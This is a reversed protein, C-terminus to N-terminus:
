KLEQKLNHQYQLITINLKPLYIGLLTYRYFHTGDIRYMLSSKNCPAQCVPSFQHGSGYHAQNNIPYKHITKNAM